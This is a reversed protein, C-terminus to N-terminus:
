WLYIHSLIKPNYHGKGKRVEKRIAERRNRRGSHRNYYNEQRRKEGHDKSKYLGLSTRDKFQQYRKDGFHIKRTKKTAKNEVYATYKKFKPGREFRLIREKMPGGGVKYKPTKRRGYKYRKASKRALRAVKSGKKCGREILSLDVAAAKGGTIASALRARGWSQATQNPRSGSSFYAGMGKKEIKLLTALTCGTKRALERNAKVTKVGYMKQANLVHGSRKSKFSKLRKRTKYKGKRYARASERIMTVQKKRDRSSLQKPIYRKPLKM